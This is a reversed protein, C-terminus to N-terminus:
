FLVHALLGLASLGLSLFTLAMGLVRLPMIMPDSSFGYAHVLRGALLLLGIVHLALAPAGMLEVMLLLLLGFPAYEACNAHARMLCLLRADGKDGMSVRNGRRYVIVRASLWIYLGTLIAAYLPTVALSM